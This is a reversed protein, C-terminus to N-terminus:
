FGTFSSIVSSSSAKYSNSLAFFIADEVDNVFENEDSTKFEASSPFRTEGGVPSVLLLACRILDCLLDLKEVGVYVVRKDSPTDHLESLVLM